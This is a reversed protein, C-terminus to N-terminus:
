YVKTPQKLQHSNVPKFITGGCSDCQYSESPKRKVKHNILYARQGSGIYTGKIPHTCKCPNNKSQEFSDPKEESFDESDTLSDYPINELDKM